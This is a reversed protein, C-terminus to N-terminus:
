QNNKQKLLLQRHQKSQKKYATFNFHKEALNDPMQGFMISLENVSLEDLPHYLEKRGFINNEVVLVDRLKLLHGRLQSIALMVASINGGSTIVEEIPLISDLAFDLENLLEKIEM